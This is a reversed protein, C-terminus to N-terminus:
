KKRKPRATDLPFEEPNHSHVTEIVFQASAVADAAEAPTLQTDLGYDARLRLGLLHSYGRGFDPPWKGLHVLERHVAAEVAGHKRFSRDEAAFHAPVAYFAAYYARSVAADADISLNVRAAALARVAKEWYIQGQRNV